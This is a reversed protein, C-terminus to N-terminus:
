LVGNGAFVGSRLTPLPLSVLRPEFHLRPAFYKIFLRAVPFLVDACTFLGGILAYYYTCHRLIYVFIYTCQYQLTYTM